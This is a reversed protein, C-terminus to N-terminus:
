EVVPRQKSVAISKGHNLENVAVDKMVNGNATFTYFGNLGQYKVNRLQEGFGKRRNVTVKMVQSLLNATDYATIEYLGPMKKYRNQYNVGFNSEAIKEDVDAISYYIRNLIDPPLSMNEPIDLGQNCIIRIDTSVLRIGKIVEGMAASYGTVVVLDPVSKLAKTALTRVEQPNKEFSDEFVVEVGKESFYNKFQKLSASGGADNIYLIAVKHPKLTNFAFDVLVQTEQASNIITRYIGERGDTIIPSTASSTILAVGAQTAVDRIAMNEGSTTAWIAVTNENALAKQALTVATKPDGGSDMFEFSLNTVGDTVASEIGNRLWEGYIAASGTMPAIVAIKNSPAESAKKGECGFLSLAVFVVVLFRKKVPNM